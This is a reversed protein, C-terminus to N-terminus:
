SIILIDLVVFVLFELRVPDLLSSLKQSIALIVLECYIQWDHTGIIALGTPSVRESRLKMVKWKETEFCINHHAVGLTSRQFFYKGITTPPKSTGYFATEAPFKTEGGFNVWFQGWGLDLIM